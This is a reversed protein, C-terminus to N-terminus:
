FRRHAFIHSSHIVRVIQDEKGQEDRQRNADRHMEDIPISDFVLDLGPAAADQRNDPVGQAAAPKELFALPMVGDSVGVARARRDRRATFGTEEGANVPGFPWPGLFRRRPDNWAM